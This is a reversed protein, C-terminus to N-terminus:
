APRVLRESDGVVARRSTSLSTVATAFLGRRSIRLLWNGFIVALTLHFSPM